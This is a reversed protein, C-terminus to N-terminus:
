DDGSSTPRNLRARAREVGDSAFSVGDPLRPPLRVTTQGLARQGVHWAITWASDGPDRLRTIVRLEGGPALRDEPLHAVAARGGAPVAAADIALAVNIIQRAPLPPPADIGLVQALAKLARGEISADGEGDPAAIEPRRTAIPATLSPTGFAGRGQTSLGALRSPYAFDTEGPGPPPASPCGPEDGRLQAGRYWAIEPGSAGSWRVAVPQGRLDTGAAHLALPAKWLVEVGPVKRLADVDAVVAWLGHDTAPAGCAVATRETVELTTLGDVRRPLSVYQASFEGDADVSLVAWREDQDALTDLQLRGRPRLSDWTDEVTWTDAHSITVRLDLVPGLRTAKIQPLRDSPDVRLTVDVPLRDYPFPRASRVAEVTVPGLAEAAGYSPNQAHMQVTLVPSVSSEAHGFYVASARRLAAQTWQESPAFGADDSELHLGETLAHVATTELPKPQRLWWAVLATAIAIPLVSAKLTRRIVSARATIRDAALDLDARLTDLIALAAQGQPPDALLHERATAFRRAIDRLRRRQLLPAQVALQHLAAPAHVADLAEGSLAVQRLAWVAEQASEVRSHIDADDGVAAEIIADRWSM